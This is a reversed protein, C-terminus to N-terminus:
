NCQQVMEDAEDDDDNKNFTYIPLAHRLLLLLLLLEQKDKMLLSLSFFIKRMKLFSGKGAAAQIPSNEKVNVCVCLL